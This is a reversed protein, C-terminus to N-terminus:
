FDNAKEHCHFPLELFWFLPFFSTLDRCIVAIKALDAFKGAVLQDLNIGQVFEPLIANPRQFDVKFLM